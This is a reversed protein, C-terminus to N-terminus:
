AAQQKVQTLVWTYDTFDEIEQGCILLMAAHLDNDGYERKGQEAAECLLWDHWCENDTEALFETDTTVGDAFRFDHAISEAIKRCEALRMRVLRCEEDERRQQTDERAYWGGMGWDPSSYGFM